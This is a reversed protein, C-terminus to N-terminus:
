PEGPERKYRSGGHKLNNIEDNIAYLAATSTEKHNMFESIGRDSLKDPSYFLISEL